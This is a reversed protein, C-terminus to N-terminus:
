ARNARRDNRKDLYMDKDAESIIDILNQSPETKIRYGLAINAGHLSTNNKAFANRINNILNDAADTDFGPALIVFEDGGLRAIFNREGACDALIQAAKRLVDDGKSHGLTDNIVKLRNMDGIIVCLPLMKNEKYIEIQEDFARRNHVGTLSDITSIHQLDRIRGSIHTINSFTFITGLKGRKKHRLPQIKITYSTFLANDKEPFVMEQAQNEKDYTILAGKAQFGKMLAEVTGIKIPISHQKMWMVASENMDTIEGQVNVVFIHESLSEFVESRALVYNSTPSTDMAFHFFFMSIILGWITVDVPGSGGVLLAFMNFVVTFLSGLSVAIYPLKYPRAVKRMEIIVLIMSFVTLVYSYGAHMWFWIGRVNELIREPHNEIIAFEYRFLGHFSNTFNLIVTIIPVISILAFFKINDIKKLGVFRAVFMTIFVPLFAIFPMISHFFFEAWYTSYTIMSLFQFLCWGFAALCILLFRKNLPDERKTFFTMATILFTVLVMPMAVNTAYLNMKKQSGRDTPLKLMVM